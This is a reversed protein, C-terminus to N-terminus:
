DVRFPIRLEGIRKGPRPSRLDAVFVIRRDEGRVKPFYLFGTISGGPQLVGEPIAMERMDRTPLPIQWVPYYRDYYFSDYAWPHGWPSLGAYPRRYYPAYYFGSYLFRPTYVPRSAVQEVTGEIELPPLAPYHVGRGSVLSFENYRIRLPMGSDNEISVKLPTLEDDLNQPWADWADPVVTVRVGATRAFAAKEMGPVTLADAAPVLQPGLACGALLAAAALVALGLVAHHAPHTATRSATIM